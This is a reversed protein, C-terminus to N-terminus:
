AADHPPATLGKEIKDYTKLSIGAGPVNLFRYLLQQSIGLDKAVATVSSRESMERLRRKAQETKTEM